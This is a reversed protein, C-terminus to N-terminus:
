ADRFSICVNNQRWDAAVSENQCALQRNQSTPYFFLKSNERYSFPRKLYRADYWNSEPGPRLFLDLGAGDDKHQM